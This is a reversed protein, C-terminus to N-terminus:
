PNDMCNGDIGSKCSHCRLQGPIDNCLSGQILSGKLSYDIVVNKYNARSFKARFFTAGVPRACVTCGIYPLRVKATIKVDLLNKLPRHCLNLNLKFEWNYIVSFKIPTILMFDMRAFRIRRIFM